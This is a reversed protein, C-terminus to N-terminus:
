MWQRKAKRNKWSKIFYNSRHIDEWTTPLHKRKDRTYETHLRSDKICQTTKPNRFYGRRCRKGTAPVPGNRFRLFNAKYRFHIARERARYEMKNFSYYYVQIDKSLKKTALLNFGTDYVAYDWYQKQNIYYFYKSYKALMDADKNYSSERYNTCISLFGLLEIYSTFEVHRWDEDFVYYKKEM